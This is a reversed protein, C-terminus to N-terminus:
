SKTFALAPTSTGGPNIVTINQAGASGSAPVAAIISTDDVIEFVSNSAGFKVLSATLFGSGTITIATGAPGTGPSANTATPLPQSASPNAIVLPKGVGALTVTAVDDDTVGTKARAWSVTAKFQYALDAGPKDYIRFERIAESGTTDPDAGKRIWEAEWLFDPDTPSMRYRQVDFSATANAGTKSVSPSGEDDYTTVDTTIAPFDYQINRTFRVKTWTPESFTGTNVQIALDYANSTTFTDEDEGVPAIPM